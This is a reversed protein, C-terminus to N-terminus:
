TSAAQLRRLRDRYVQARAQVECWRDAFEDEWGPVADGEIGLGPRILATLEDVEQAVDAVEDLEVALEDTALMTPAWRSMTEASEMKVHQLAVHALSLWEPERALLSVRDRLADPLVGTRDQFYRQIPKVQEARLGPTGRQEFETVGAIQALARDIVLLVRTALDAFAINAVRKWQAAERTEIWEEIIFAAVAFLVLGSVIAAFMPHETWFGSTLEAPWDTFTVAVVAIVVGYLLWRRRKGQARTVSDVTDVPRPKQSPVIPPSPTRPPARSRKARNTDGPARSENFASHGPALTESQM